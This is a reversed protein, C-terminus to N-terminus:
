SSAFEDQWPFQPLSQNKFTIEKFYIFIIKKKFKKKINDCSHNFVM